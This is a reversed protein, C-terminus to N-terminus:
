PEISRKRPPDAAAALQGRRDGRSTRNANGDCASRAQGGNTDTNEVLEMGQPRNELRSGEVKAAATEAAAAVSTAAEVLRSLRDAADTKPAYHLYLSTTALDAHGLWAQVDTVPFVQVAVTGFGHRLDHLRVRKV